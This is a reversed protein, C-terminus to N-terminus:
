PNGQEGKEKLRESIVHRRFTGDEQYLITAGSPLNSVQGPLLLAPRCGATLNSVQGVAHRHIAQYVVM